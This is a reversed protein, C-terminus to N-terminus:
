SWNNKTAFWPFISAQKWTTSFIRVFEDQIWLLRCCRLLQKERHLSRFKKGPIRLAAMKRFIGTHPAKQKISELASRMTEIMGSFSTIWHHLTSHALAPQEGEHSDHFFEANKHTVARRYSQQDDELYLRCRDIISPIVYRKYPCVFEPYYNFTKGCIHCKWRTILSVLREVENEGLILFIRSKVEHLKFHDVEHKCKSCYPYPCVFNKELVRREYAKVMRLQKHKFTDMGM